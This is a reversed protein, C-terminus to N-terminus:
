VPGTNKPNWTEVKASVQERTRLDKVEDTRGDSGVLYVYPIGKKDAYEIQKGLKVPEPYTDVNIGRRRLSSSAAIQMERTIGPMFAVMVEAPSAPGQPMLNAEKLVSIIRSLGISIGVGPFSEKIMSGVLNEYRGGSCVSPAGPIDALKTEYVNGTYYALGRVISLDVEVSTKPPLQRLNERLMVLEGIGEDLLPSKVGLQQVRKAFSDDTSSIRMLDFCAQIQTDNMGLSDKLKQGISAPPEKDLKDLIRLVEGTNEIGLGRSFGELVKRNNIKLQVGGVGLKSIADMAAMAVEIDYYPSVTNRSVVDIDCQYFERYRGSQAREGRWVKQMQHRKFPFTLQAQNQAVYRAFPVTLDYHLGLPVKDEKDNPGAALRRIGYIEKDTDGQKLLIPVPEVSRTEISVYGYSEYVKRLTDLWKLETAREQPLWEPFGSVAGILQKDM